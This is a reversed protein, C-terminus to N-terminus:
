LGSTTVNRTIWPPKGRRRLYFYSDEEGRRAIRVHAPTQNASARLAFRDLFHLAIKTAGGRFM